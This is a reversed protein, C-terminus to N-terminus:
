SIYLRTYLREHQMSRLGFGAFSIGLSDENLSEVKKITNQFIDQAGFLIKQGDRQSIPVLKACNNVIHAATNYIAASLALTKDIVLLQAALGYCVSYHGACRGNKVMQLYAKFFPHDKLVTEVIILFRAGLKTGAMRLERPTKAASIIRELRCIGDLNGEGAYEWALKVALLENYLFNNLLYSELYKGASAADHVIGKQVYTELGFSQTFGGIPLMPDSLQLLCFFPDTRVAAKPTDM